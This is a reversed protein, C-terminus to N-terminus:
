SRLIRKIAVPRQLQRDVARQVVGWGGRGLEGTTQYRAAFNLDIATAATPVLQESPADSNTAM